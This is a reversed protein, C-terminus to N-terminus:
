EQIDNRVEDRYIILGNQLEILPSTINSILDDAVTLDLYRTLTQGQM